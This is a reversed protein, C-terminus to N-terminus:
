QNLMDYLPLHRFYVELMLVRLSTSYLRGGKEEWKDKPDWSGAVAGDQKQTSRLTDKMAENWQQWYEGQMHYMVQNGYYWCYSTDKGPQPLHTLLYKAGEQLRADGRSAGLYQHCLLGEATMAPSGQNGRQYKFEGRSHQVRQIFQRAKDLTQPPVDLEAMQASKLAM